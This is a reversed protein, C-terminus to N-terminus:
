RKYVLIGGQRTTPFTGRKKRSPISKGKLCLSTGRISAMVGLHARDAVWVFSSKLSWERIERMKLKTSFYKDLIFRLTKIKCKLFLFQKSTLKFCNAKSIKCSKPKKKSFLNDARTNPSKEKPSLIDRPSKINKYTKLTFPELFLELNQKLFIQRKKFAWKILM